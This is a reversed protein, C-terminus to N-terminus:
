SEEAIGIYEEGSPRFRMTFARREQFPTREPSDGGRFDFHRESLVRPPPTFVPDGYMLQVSVLRRALRAEIWTGHPITPYSDRFEPLLWAERASM